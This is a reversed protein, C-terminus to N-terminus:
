GGGGELTAVLNKKVAERVAKIYVFTKYQDILGYTRM